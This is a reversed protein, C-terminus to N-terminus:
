VPEPSLRVVDGQRVTFPTHEGYRVCGTFDVEYGLNGPWACIRLVVRKDQVFILRTM